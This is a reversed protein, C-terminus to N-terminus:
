ALILNVVRAIKKGPLHVFDAKVLPFKVTRVSTLFLERVNRSSDSVKINNDSNNLLSHTCSNLSYKDITIIIIIIIIIIIFIIWLRPTNPINCETIHGLLM